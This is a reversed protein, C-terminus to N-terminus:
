ASVLTIDNRSILLERKIIEGNENPLCLEVCNLKNINTILRLYCYLQKSSFDNANHSYYKELYKLNSSNKGNLIHVVISESSLEPQHHGRGYPLRSITLGSVVDSGSPFASAICWSVTHQRKQSGYEQAFLRKFAPTKEHQRYLSYQELIARKIEMVQGQTIHGNLKQIM